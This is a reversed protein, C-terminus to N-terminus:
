NAFGKSYRELEMVGPKKDKSQHGPRQRGAIKWGGVGTPAKGHFDNGPEYSTKQEKGRHQRVLKRVHLVTVNQDAADRGGNSAGDHVNGV